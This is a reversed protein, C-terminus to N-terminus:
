VARGWTVKFTVTLTQTNDKVIAPSVGVQFPQFTPSSEVSRGTFIMFSNITGNAANIPFTASAISEFSGPVYPNANVQVIGPLAGSPTGTIAALNGSHARFRMLGFTNVGNNSVAPCWDITNANAARTTYTRGNHVTVVDTAPIVCNLTYAVTLFETPLVTISTPNGQDDLILARSFLSGTTPNTYLGIETWTGAVQGKDSQSTGVSRSVYPPTTAPVTTWTLRSSFIEAGSLSTDGASPVSTGVGLAPYLYVVQGTSGSLLDLGVDTIINKIRREELVEGNAAHKKIRFEGSLGLKLPIEVNM